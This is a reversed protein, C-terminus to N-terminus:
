RAGKPKHRKRTHIVDQLLEEATLVTAPYLTTIVMPEKPLYPATIEELEPPLAFTGSVPHIVVKRFEEPSLKERLYNELLQRDRLLRIGGQENSLYNKKEGNPIYAAYFEMNLEESM